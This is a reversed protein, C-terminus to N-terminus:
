EEEGMRKRMKKEEEGSKAKAPYANANYGAKVAELAMNRREQLGDTTRSQGVERFPGLPQKKNKYGHM